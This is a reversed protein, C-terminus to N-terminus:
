ILTSVGQPLNGNCNSVIQANSCSCEHRCKRYGGIIQFAIDGYNDSYNDSQELIKCLPATDISSSMGLTFM